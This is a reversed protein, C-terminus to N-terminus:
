RPEKYGMSQQGPLSSTESELQRTPEHCFMVAANEDIKGYFELCVNKGRTSLLAKYIDEKSAAHAIVRGGKPRLHKDLQTYEILVWQNRYQKKIKAIEM